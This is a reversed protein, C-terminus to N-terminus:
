LPPLAPGPIRQLLHNNEPLILRVGAARLREIEAPRLFTFVLTQYRMTKALTSSLFSVFLDRHKDDPNQQLPEDLLAFGPHLGSKEISTQAIALVYAMILRCHDSASGSSRLRRPGLYPIYHEDLTVPVGPEAAVGGHGLGRLFTQLYVIFVSKRTHLDVQRSSVEDLGTSQAALEDAAAQLHRLEDALASMRDIESEVASLDAAAKALQERASGVAMNVTALARERDMLQKEILGVEAPVRITRARATEINAFTLALDRKLAEIHAEVSSASQSTLDFTSLDLSRHCTPCEVQDLRGIGQQKFRLVDQSANIRHDLSEALESFEKEQSRTIRLEERLQHRQWKLDLVAQSADSSSSTNLTDLTEQGFLTRLAAARERLRSMEKQLNFEFDEELIETLKRKSWRAAIDKTTGRSSWELTWGRRQFTMVIQAGLTELGAKLRAERM